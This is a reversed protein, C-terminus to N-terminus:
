KIREVKCAVLGQKLDAIQSFARKSIDIRTQAFRKGIKDTVTVKVSRGNHINTILLESGLPFMRAACTLGDDSFRQGNAMVGKWIKWSGEAKLSAISYWSCKVIIPEGAQACSVMILVFLLIGGVVPRVRSFMKGGQGKKGSLKAM